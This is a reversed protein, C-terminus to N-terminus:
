SVATEVDGKAANANIKYGLSHVSQILKGQKILKRRLKSVHTDVSRHFVYVNNGWVKDLIEDRTFVRGIESALLSLIKFEIPTLDVEKAVGSEMLKARQSKLDIILGDIEICLASSAKARRLKAEVRAKLEIVNFPKCIYDDGGVLYGAIRNEVTVQGSIFIVPVNWNGKKSRIWDCFEYGDGDPLGIDVLLIDFHEKFLEKAQTVSRAWTLAHMPELAHKILTFNDESDELILISPM